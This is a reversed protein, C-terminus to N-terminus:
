RREDFGPPSSAKNKKRPLYDLITKPDKADVSQLYDFLTNQMQDAIGINADAIDTNKNEVVNSDLNFLYRSGINGNQDWIVYLKYSGQRIASSLKGPHHFVIADLPRKVVGSFPDHFLHRISGGDIEDPLQQVGGAIDYFTPLLDYGVVPVNSHSGPKIGPGRVIFPVRIGGEMLTSKSGSLPHNLPKKEDNKGPVFESGGNDSSFFVYTNEDINLDDLLDLLRGVGQDMEDLMAAWAPPYGRDPEGKGLYRNLTEQGCVISLHPAYYSVQVYFPRNEEVARRIFDVASNTVSTTRKPDENDIFFPPAERHNKYGFTIPMGGTPNGTIGDSAIYGSEEPSSIMTTGGWKGFHACMYAPNARIMAKPITMHDAPIFSSKFETGGRATSVGCLISRRTPTCIPAPAYGSTFRIGSDGLRDINPTNLYKSHSEPIEPHMPKSVQSWGQDDSLIFLINPSENKITDAAQLATPVFFLFSIIISFNQKM